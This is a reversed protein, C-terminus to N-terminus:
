VVARRGELGQGEGDAEDDRGDGDGEGDHGGGGHGHPALSQRVLLGDHRLEVADLLERPHVHEAGVLRARQGQVLHHQLAEGGERVPHVLLPEESERRQRGLPLLGRLVREVRQHEVGHVLRGQVRVRLEVVRGEVGRGLLGHRHDPAGVAALEGDGLAGGVHDQLQGVAVLGLDPVLVVGLDFVQGRAADASEADRDLVLTFGHVQEAEQGEEVRRAGVGLLRDPLAAQVPAAHLHDGPVVVEDGLLGGPLEGHAGVDELGVRQGHDVHLLLQGLRQAGVVALHDLADGPEGLHERLVLKQDDLGEPLAAPDDPHRAVAHVVRGGELAGVHADGDLAGGVGGAGGGVDDQRRGAERHHDVRNDDGPLDELADLVVQHVADGDGGLEEQEEEERDEGELRRPVAEVVRVHPRRVVLRLLEGPVKLEGHQAQHDDHDEVVEGDDGDGVVVHHRRGDRLQPVELRHEGHGDPEAAHRHAPLHGEQRDQELALALVAEEPAERVPLDHGGDPEGEREEVEERDEGGAARVAEEEGALRAGREEHRRREGHRHRRDQRRLPGEVAGLLAHVHLGESAGLEAEDPGVADGPEEDLVEGLKEYVPHQQVEVEVPDLGGLLEPRLPRRGEERVRCSMVPAVRVVFDLLALDSAEVGRVGPGSAIKDSTPFPRTARAM